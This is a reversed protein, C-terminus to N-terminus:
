ERKNANSERTNANNIAVQVIEERVPVVAILLVQLLNM